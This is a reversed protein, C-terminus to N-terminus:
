LQSTECANPSIVYLTTESFDSTGARELPGVLDVLNNSDYYYHLLLITMMIM